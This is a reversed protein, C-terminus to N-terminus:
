EEKCYAMIVGTETLAQQLLDTVGIEEASCVSAELGGDPDVSM